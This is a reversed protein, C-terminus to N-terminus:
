SKESISFRWIRKPLKSLMPKALSFPNTTTSSLIERQHFIELDKKATEVADAKGFFFSQNDDIFQKIETM